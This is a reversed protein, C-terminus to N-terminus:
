LSLEFLVIVISKLKVLSIQVSFIDQYRHVKMSYNFFIYSPLHMFAHMMHNVHLSRTWEDSMSM